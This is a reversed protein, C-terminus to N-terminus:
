CASYQILWLYLEDTAFAKEWSNHGVDPYITLKASGGAKNVANVMNISETVYVVNDLAGHFAWVPINKLRSANWYMGGGCVPVMAAFWEPRSMAAQWATYGGMSVGSLYVRTKDVYDSNIMNEIFELLKEFIEFWTDTYCQPAIVVFPLKRGNEIEYLPGAKKLLDLNNGRGGAGHIHVLLPYKKKEDFGDPYSIIYNLRNFRKAETM